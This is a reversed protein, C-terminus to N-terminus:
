YIRNAKQTQRIFAIIAEIEAPSVQPQPPMDGFKWHHQRVGRTIAVRFAGDGHHGPRYIRHILSPGSGGGGGDAGHCAACARAFAKRGEAARASLGPVAVAVSEDQRTTAMLLWTAAGLAAAFIIMGVFPWVAGGRARHPRATAHGPRKRRRRSVPM